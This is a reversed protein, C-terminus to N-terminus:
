DSPRSQSARIRPASGQGNWRYHSISFGRKECGFSAPKQKSVTNTICKSGFTRKTLSDRKGFSNSCKWGGSFNFDGYGSVSEGDTLDSWNFGGKQKDSCENNSYYPTNFNDFFDWTAAVQHSALGTVLLAYTAKM